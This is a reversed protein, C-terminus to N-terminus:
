PDLDHGASGAPTCRAPSAFEWFSDFNEWRADNPDYRHAACFHVDATVWVVTASGAQKIHSLLGAGARGASATRLRGRM